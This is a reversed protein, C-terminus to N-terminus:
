ITSNEDRVHGTTDKKLPKYVTRIMEVLSEACELSEELSLKEGTEREFLEQFKKADSETM